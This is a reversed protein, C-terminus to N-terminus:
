TVQVAVRQPGNNAYGGLNWLPELPQANGAADVARCRLEYRGPEGANWEYSWGRWAVPSVPDGLEAEAWTRGGDTSVEVREVAGWGSWARGELLVAGVKVFRERTMFDPIGPPAMLARPAMRTVPAGEEDETQRYRYAWSQQYGEFPSALVTIRSLWKVNTMGYWGPVVLRLPFGHQPPLPEGNV